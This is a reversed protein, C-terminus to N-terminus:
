KAWKLCEGGSGGYAAWKLCKKPKPPPTKGGLASADGPGFALVGSMLFASTLALSALKRFSLNTHSFYRTM